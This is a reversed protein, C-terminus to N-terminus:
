SVRIHIVRAYLEKISVPLKLTSAQKQIAIPIKRFLVSHFLSMKRFLECPIQPILHTKNPLIIHLNLMM